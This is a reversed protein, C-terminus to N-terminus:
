WNFDSEAYNSRFMPLLEEEQPDEYKQNKAIFLCESKYLPKEKYSSITVIKTIERVKKFRESPATYESIFCPESQEECWKFFSDHDFKIEKGNLMYGETGKYPPDCYIISNPKIEIERYDLNSYFINVKRKLEMQKIRKLRVVEECKEYGKFKELNLFQMFIPNKDNAIEEYPKTLLPMFSQLKTYVEKTPFTFESKGFYHGAMQTGLRREVEAQTLKAGRLATLLYQRQAEKTEEDEKIMKAIKEKLTARDIGNQKCYWGIYKSRIEERSRVLARNSIDKIDIGFEKFLSFDNFVKAYHLAKKYPEVSVGYAYQNGNGGFSYCFAVYPDSNKLRQFDERSIWETRNEFEGNFAMEIAKISLPNLDNIYFNKYKRSKIAVETIAGGGSFLDYFNETPPLAEVIQEAIFNKSGQYPLGYFKM